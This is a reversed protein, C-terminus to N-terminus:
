PGPWRGVRQEEGSGVFWGDLGQSELWGPGQAGLVIGATSAANAAAASSAMVSCTWWPTDAPRGTRPDIIHHARDGDATTWARRGVGSTALAGDWLVLEAQGSSAQEPDATVTWPEDRAIVRLDGGMNAIADRRFEAVARDAVRDALWGKAVAGLDLALGPPVRVLAHSGAPRIEIDRWSGASDQSLPTFQKESPQLPPTEADRWTGYGAADVLHALCPDVIGETSHAADIAAELVEVFYWSVSHWRGPQQNVISLESDPRFRSLATEMRMVEDRLLHTVPAVSADRVILSLETRWRHLVAYTETGPSPPAIPAATM